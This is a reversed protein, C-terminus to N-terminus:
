CVVRERIAEHLAPGAAVISGGRLWDDDGRADTVVGGAERVLLAGAAVDHPSLHLEWFGDLRGAAVYALDTAASGMRRMGRVDYFFRNFNELNSHELENRRYPFGTALVAEGLSGAPSVRLEDGNLQAGGGLTATFTEGLLPLHVVALQPLGGLYLGMSVAFIPLRHVYNTTGDLPDLFWRPVRPDIVDRVEEEAEIHHKPRAARLRSVLLRESAVDAESVLDRASSKARVAKLRGYHELLIKGADHAASTALELLADLEARDMADPAHGNM